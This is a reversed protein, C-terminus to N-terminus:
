AFPLIRAPKTVRRFSSAQSNACVNRSKFRAIAAAAHLFSSAPHKARRGTDLFFARQAILESLRSLLLLGTRYSRDELCRSIRWLTNTPMYFKDASDPSDPLNRLSNEQM